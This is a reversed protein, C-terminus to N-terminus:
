QTCTNVLTPENRILFDKYKKTIENAEAIILIENYKAKATNYHKIESINSCDPMQNLDVDLNSFESMLTILQHEINYKQVLSELIQNEQKLVNIDSEAKRHKNELDAIKEESTKANLFYDTRQSEMTREEENKSDIWQEREKQFADKDNELQIRMQYITYMASSMLIFVILLAVFYPKSNNALKKILFDM